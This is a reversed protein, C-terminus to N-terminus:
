LGGGSVDASTPTSEYSSVAPTPYDRDAPTPRPDVTGSSSSSDSPADKLARTLRGVILGAGAAVLLFTGPRRRAFSRVEALAED